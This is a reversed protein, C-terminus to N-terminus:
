AAARSDRYPNPYIFRRLGGREFPRWQGEPLALRDAIAYLVAPNYALGCHSLGPVVLVPHGDGAPTLRLLPAMSFFASLEAIARVELMLLQRSPPASPDTGHM